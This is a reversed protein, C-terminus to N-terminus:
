YYNAMFSRIGEFENNIDQTVEFTETQGGGYTVVVTFTKVYPDTMDQVLDYLKKGDPVNPIGTVVVPTMTKDSEGDDVYTFVDEFPDQYSGSITVSDVGDTIVLDPEVGDVTATVSEIEDVVPDDPIATITENISFNPRTVAGLEPPDVSLTVGM